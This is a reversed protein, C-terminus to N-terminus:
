GFYDFDRESRLKQRIRFVHAPMVQPDLEVYARTGHWVYRADSLLDHVQFTSKTPLGLREADLEIFGSQRHHPDLNVVVLLVNHEDPAARSYCLLQSNDCRHRYFDRQRQLAPNERRIRNVRAILHRLSSHKELDWSKLEYKENDIYEESGPRAVHEMLEFAPGYMGYNSSM